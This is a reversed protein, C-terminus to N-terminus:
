KTYPAKGRLLGGKAGGGRWLDWKAEAYREFFAHLRRALDQQIQRYREQGYLNALEGPDRKMDYLENPEGGVREIYKYADTRIARVNEFEYFVVNNWPIRKGRLVADFRRGPSPPESPMKSALGLYGLVTPMLDYNAVMLDRRQGVPIHGPQRLILPIRMTWDYATLPRTHDGMGWFGSHGGALGQDATFIVLTNDEVGCEALAALVKGVGDDVMSVESAYARMASLNNMMQRNERLWANPAERPFSTMEKDAYLAAYRNASPKLVSGGLGYPGNYALFLFFPRDRNSRIFEIGRRTWYDTQHSPEKHIAGNEIIEQNTFGTTHGGPKTVWFSFGEQPHLNDGLHWKGSLGCVYGSESLVQPLSDFEAITSYAKPGLMVDNNVYKHVGHQSPMLGTLVTARTPSCVANNAFAQTFLMGQRAMRDINPTKIEPNGYCGLTWPGQNDTMILVLNVRKPSAPGSAARAGTSLALIRGAGVASVSTLFQRRNM